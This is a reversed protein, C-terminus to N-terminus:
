ALSGNAATLGGSYDTAHQLHSPSTWTRPTKQSLLCGAAPCCGILGKIAFSQGVRVGDGCVLVPNMRPAGFSAGLNEMKEVVLEVGVTESERRSVGFLPIAPPRLAIQLKTIKNVLWISTM